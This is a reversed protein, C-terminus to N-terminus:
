FTLNLGLSVIRPTPFNGYDVGLSNADSKAQRYDAKGVQQTTLEPDLGTYKTVTFLNQAQLYFRLKDVGIKRLLEAPLTYGISLNKLRLYGGPEVYYSVPVQGSSGDAGDLVPLKADRHEPTWSDYLVRRDRNGQFTNFDTWYRVYNILQGGNKWYLFTAIDFNKYSANLNIGATFNPHPSGMFTRDDPTILGDPKGGPGSLDKYRWKGIGKDSQQSADVEAQNQFFGDIIYGFFSSMPRGTVSRNFPDIRSRNGELFPDGISGVKNRYLSFSLGADIKFERGLTTRYNVALDIGKNTMEGINTPQRDVSGFLIPDLQKEYLLDTTKRTYLDLVINLKNNFMTADIGVNTTASQEWKISPNGIAFLRLGQTFGTNSGDIPYGANNDFKYATIFGFDKTNDNGLIGYGVRLKLDNLWNFKNHLFAEESIRWGASLSSFNGYKNNPGFVNSSGDRRFSGSLLYKDQYNYDLKAIVPSSKRYRYEYSHGAPTTSLGSNIQWFNRDFSFYTNNSNDLVRGAGEVMETGVLAKIDHKGFSKKFSVTNFWTMQYGFNQGENFTGVGGRGEANEYSPVGFNYYYSTGYDMGIVSRATFYKLFDFEAYASGIIGVKRDKNNQGRYLSAYPNEANGLNSGRTGAFNGKIDFVPVIPQMRYAMSIANGEDQNNFGHKDIYSVQLNEGVRVKNKIIFNTNARVSYRKYGTFDVIGDQNYYNLGLLYNGTESGGSVSVNHSQMPAAQTVAGLWDTGTKNAAVILYTGDGNVDNLDLKYKSPDAAPDGAQVGSATGALIYEPIVPTSTTTQGGNYQGLNFTTATQGPIGQQLKLLYQGYEQTNLLDFKKILSQSGYYADYTVKSKGKGKKTTVIIVGNAAAAGYAAASSGDKLVQLSEIDNPNLDSISGVRAGDVVYLPENQNFTTFGRIRISAGAGPVGSTGVTVGSAKGQLLSEVNSGPNAVLEKANVVTVSGTIDKKRQASYGTVVVENLASTREKLSLKVSSTNAISVEDEEYGVSSVVLLNKGSPVTISFEGNAGTVAAVKTGKVSVTAMVIPSNDKANTIVGTVTKQQAYIQSSLLICCIFAYIGLLLKKSM